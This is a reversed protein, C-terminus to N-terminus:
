KPVVAIIVLLTPIVCFVVFLFQLLRDWWTYVRDPDLPFSDDSDDYGDNDDDEDRYNCQGDNDTDIPHSSPDLPDKDCYDETSRHWGDGDADSDIADCFGDFDMDPPTIDPDLHDYIEGCNSLEDWDSYGDGDDDSDQVNCIGDADTDIWDPLDFTGQTPCADERDDHGDNDDDVDLVLSTECSSSINDPKGDGDTDLFACADDPFADLANYIGDGDDDYQGWSCGLDDVVDVDPTSPCLDSLSVVGDADYDWYDARGDQDVDIGILGNDDIKFRDEAPTWISDIAEPADTYNYVKDNILVLDSDGHIGIIKGTNSSFGILEFEIGLYDTRCLIPESNLHYTGGDNPFPDEDTSPSLTSICRYITELNYLENRFVITYNETVFNPYSIHNQAYNYCNQALGNAALLEEGSSIHFVYLDGHVNWSYFRSSDPAWLKGCWGSLGTHEHLPLTSGDTLNILTTANTAWNGDPSVSDVNEVSEINVWPAQHTAEPDPSSPELVGEKSFATLPAMVIVLTLAVLSLLKENVSIANPHVIEYNGEHFRLSSNRSGRFIWQNLGNCHTADSLAWQYGM